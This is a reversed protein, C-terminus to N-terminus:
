LGFGRAAAADGVLGAAGTAEAVVGQEQDGFIVPGEALEAGQDLVLEAMAGAGEGPEPGRQQAEESRILSPRLRRAPLASSLPGLASSLSWLVAVLPRHASEPPRLTSSSARRARGIARQVEPSQGRFDAQNEVLVVGGPLDRPANANRIRDPGL